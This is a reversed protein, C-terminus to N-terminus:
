SRRRDRPSAPASRPTEPSTLWAPRFPSIAAAAAVGRFADEVIQAQQEMGHDEFRRSTAAPYRYPSRGWGLWRHVLDRWQEAAGRRYYTWAGWRQYQLCHTLEHALLALDRDGGAPLFVHNGLAVARGGSLALVVARAVRWRWSGDGRHLRVRGVDLHTCIGSLAALEPAALSM